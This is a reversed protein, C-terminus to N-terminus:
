QKIMICLCVICVLGVNYFVFIFLVKDFWIMFEDVYYWDMMWCMYKVGVYINFDLQKIDGVKLEKGISFMVQMVGIVGVYSWVLQNLWLEQYGQVVMLLWDVDYCDGYKCFVDVM